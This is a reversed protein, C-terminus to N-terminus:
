FSEDVYRTGVVVIGLPIKTNGPPAPNKPKQSPENCNSDNVAGDHVFRLIPASERIPGPGTSPDLGVSQQVTRPAREEHKL